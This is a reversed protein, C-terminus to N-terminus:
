KSSSLMFRRGASGGVGDLGNFTMASVRQEDSSTDTDELALECNEVCTGYMGGDASPDASAELVRCALEGGSPNDSILRSGELVRHALESAFAM